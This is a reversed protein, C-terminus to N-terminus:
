GGCRRGKHNMGNCKQRPPARLRLSTLHAKSMTSSSGVQTAALEERTAALALMTSIASPAFSANRILKYHADNTDLRGTHHLDVVIRAESEAVVDGICSSMVLSNNSRRWVRVAIPIGCEKLWEVFATVEVPSGYMTDREAKWAALQAEATIGWTGYTGRGDHEHAHSSYSNLATSTARHGDKFTETAGRVAQCYADIDTHKKKGKKASTYDKGKKQCPASCARDQQCASRM